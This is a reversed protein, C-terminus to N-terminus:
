CTMEVQYGMVAKKMPRKWWIDEERTEEPIPSFLSATAGMLFLPVIWKTLKMRQPNEDEDEIEEQTNPDQSNPITQPRLHSLPSTTGVLSSTQTPPTTSYHTRPLHLSTSLTRLHTYTHTFRHFLPFPPHRRM